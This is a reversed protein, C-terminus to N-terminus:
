KPKVIINDLVTRTSSNLTEWEALIDESFRISVDLKNVRIQWLCHEPRAEAPKLLQCRAAFVEGSPPAIHLVEGAYPSGTKFIRTILQNKSDTIETTLFRSYLSTPRQEPSLTDDAIEVTMFIKPVLDNGASILNNPSIIPSFDPWNAAINLVTLNGNIRQEPDRILNEPVRLQAKGININLTKPEYINPTKKPRLYTYASFLFLLTIILLVKIARGM